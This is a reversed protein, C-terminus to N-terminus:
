RYEERIRVPMKIIYYGFVRLRKSTDLVYFVRGNPEKSRSSFDCRAVSIFRGGVGVGFFSNSQEVYFCLATGTRKHRIFNTTVYLLVKSRQLQRQQNVPKVEM